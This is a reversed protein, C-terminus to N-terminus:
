KESTMVGKPEPVNLLSNKQIPIAEPHERRDVIIGSSLVGAYGSAILAQMKEISEKTISM